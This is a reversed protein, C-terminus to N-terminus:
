VTDKIEDITCRKVLIKELLHHVCRDRLVRKMGVPDLTEFVAGKQVCMMLRTVNSIGFYPPFGTAAHLLILGVAYLDSQFDPASGPTEMLEPSCFQLTTSVVKNERHDRAISHINGSSTFDCVKFQLEDDKFLINSSKLDCHVMNTKKFIVLAKILSKALKTWADIGIFCGSMPEEQRLKISTIYDELTGDMNELVLSPVEENLPCRAYDKRTITYFGYCDIIPSGEETDLFDILSSYCKMERELVKVQRSSRPIKLAVVFSDSTTQHELIGNCVVSFAGKGIVKGLTISYDSESLDYCRRLPQTVGHFEGASGTCDNQPFSLRAFPTEPSNYPNPEHDVKGTHIPTLEHKGDPTSNM